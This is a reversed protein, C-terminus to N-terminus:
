EDLKFGDLQAQLGQVAENLQEAALRFERLSEASSNSAQALRSMISRIQDAGSAQDAMARNVEEFGPALELVRDIIQDLRGGLEKVQDAGKRVQHSFSEVEMVGSSVASRVSDVMKEIHLVEKATQDSLRRIERAVVSFGRGYEGAKEAEIAANLSLMNTQESIKTIATTIAGINSTTENITNLKDAISNSAIHVERMAEEMSLLSKRNAEALSATESASETAQNMSVALEEVTTSIRQSTENAQRSADAQAQVTDASQRASSSIETASAAVQYQSKKIQRTLDSLSKVMHVFSQHLRSTEQSFGRKSRGLYNLSTQATKLDGAAIMQAIETLRAIPQLIRRVVLVSALISLLLVVATASLEGYIMKEAPELVHERPAAGVIYWGLPAYHTSFAVITQKEDPSGPVPAEFSIAQFESSDREAEGIRLLDDLDVAQQKFRGYLEKGGGEETSNKSLAEQIEPSPFTINENDSNFIFISGGSDVLNIESLTEQLRHVVSQTKKEIQQNIDDIYLGSGIIWSWRPYLFVYCSKPAWDTANLRPFRLLSFGEREEVAIRRLEHCIFNGRDDQMDYYNNGEMNRRPHALSNFDLDYAYFYDSNGFRFNRIYNKAAEQAQRKNLIKKDAMDAFSDLAQRVAQGIHQLDKKRTDMTQSRYERIAQFDKNIELVTVLLINAIMRKQFRLMESEVTFKSSLALTASTLILAAAMLLGIKSIITRFM